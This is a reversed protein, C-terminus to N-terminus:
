LREHHGGRRSQWGAFRVNAEIGLAAAQGQLEELLEGAGLFVFVTEPYRDILGDQGCRASAPPGQRGHAAGRCRRRLGRGPNRPKGAGPGERGAATAFRGLDVGSHITIFMEEPAVGTRLHDLREQDTLM